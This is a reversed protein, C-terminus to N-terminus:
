LPEKNEIDLPKFFFQKTSIDKILIEILIKSDGIIIIDNCTQNPLQHLEVLLSIVEVENNTKEKLNVIYSLGKSGGLNYIVREVGAVRPNGQSAGNFFLIHKGKEKIWNAM